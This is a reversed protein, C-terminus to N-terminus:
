SRLYQGPSIPPRGSATLASPSRFVSQDPKSAECQNIKTIQKNLYRLFLHFHEPSARNQKPCLSVLTGLPPPLLLFGM